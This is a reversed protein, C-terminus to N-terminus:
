LKVLSGSCLVTAWTTTPHSPHDNYALGCTDCTSGGDARHWDGDDGAETGEVIGLRAALADRAVTLKQARRLPWTVNM